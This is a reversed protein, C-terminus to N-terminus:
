PTKGLKKKARYRKQKEANTLPVSGLLRRSGGHQTGTFKVECDRCYYRQTGAATKGSKTIRHGDHM